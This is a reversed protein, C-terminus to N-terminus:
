ETYPMPSRWAAPVAKLLEIPPTPIAVRLLRNTFVIFGADAVARSERDKMASKPREPLNETKLSPSRLLVFVRNLM